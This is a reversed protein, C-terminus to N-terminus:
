SNAVGRMKEQQQFLERLVEDASPKHGERVFVAFQRVPKTTTDRIFRKYFRIQEIKAPGSDAALQAAGEHAPVRFWRGTGVFYFLPHEVRSRM